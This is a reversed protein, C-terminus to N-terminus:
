VAAKKGSSTKRAPRKKVQAKKKRATAEAVSAELAAMLKDSESPAVVKETKSPTVPEGMRVTEILNARLDILDDRYEDLAAVEASKAEILSGFLDVVQENAVVDDFAAAGDLVQQFTNAYALCTVMLGGHSPYIIALKQRSKPMLKGVAAVNAEEMAERLGALVRLMGMGSGKAPALFYSAVAREWPIEDLPVFEQITLADLTTLREIEEIESTTIEIFSDGDWVGRLPEGDYQAQIIRGNKDRRIPDVTLTEADPGPDPVDIRAIKEGEPTARGFTVDRKESAGQLAVPVRVEEVELMLTKITTAM